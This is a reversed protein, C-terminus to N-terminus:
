DLVKGLTPEHGVAGVRCGLVGDGDMLVADFRDLQDVDDAIHTVLLSAYGLFIARM